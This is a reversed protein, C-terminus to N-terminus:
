REKRKQRREKRRELFTKREPTLVDKTKRGRWWSAISFGTPSIVLLAFWRLVARLSKALSDIADHLPNSM